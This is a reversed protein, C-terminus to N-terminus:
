QEGHSSNRVSNGDGAPHRPTVTIKEIRECAVAVILVRCSLGGCRDKAASNAILTRQNRPAMGM